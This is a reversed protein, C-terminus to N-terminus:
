VCMKYELASKVSHWKAMLKEDVHVVALIVVLYSQLLLVMLNTLPGPVWLLRMFHKVTETVAWLDKCLVHVEASLESIVCKSTVPSGKWLTVSCLSISYKIKKKRISLWSINVRGTTEYETKVLININKVLLSCSWGAASIYNEIIYM